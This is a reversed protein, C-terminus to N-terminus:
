LFLGASYISVIQSKNKNNRVHQDFYVIINVKNRPRLIENMKQILIENLFFICISSKSGYHIITIDWM